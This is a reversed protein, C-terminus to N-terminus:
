SGVRKAQIAINKARAILMRENGRRVDMIAQLARRLMPDNLRDRWKEALDADLTKAFEQANM